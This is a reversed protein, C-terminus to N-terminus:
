CKMPYAFLGSCVVSLQQALHTSTRIDIAAFAAPETLYQLHGVDVCSVHQIPVFTCVCRQLLQQLASALADAHFTTRDAVCADVGAILQRITPGASSPIVSHLAVLVETATMVPEGAIIM